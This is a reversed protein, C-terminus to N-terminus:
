KSKKKKTNKSIFLNELKEAAEKDPRQLAHAYIKMTTAPTSHGLRKGVTTTDVGQAILLSANTHRLQHFTLPPLNNKKRFKQFWKSPTDPFIPSGDWKIFLRDNDYDIGFLEKEKKQWLDGAKLRQENQWTKYQKLVKSVIPPLAITRISTQNKPDKPNVREDKSKSKDNVYQSARRIKIINNELDFDKWELGSLEGLRMGVFIVLYLIAKLRIHEKELLDLMEAVDKEEYHKPEAKDVKPSKVREAPNSTIVQWQVACTLMSSLLRHYHSITNTTLKGNDNVPNFLDKINADLFSAIKEAITQTTKGGKCLSAITKDSVDISRAFSTYGKRKSSGTVVNILESKATYKINQIIGEEGLNNYFEILQIPQLQNLKIHGLAPIIRNDLLSRYSNITKPALQKEAYDKFWRNSFDKLTIKGDLFQGTEVLREFELAQNQIEKEAQKKTLGPDLTVTKTKVLKKGNTDYGQSVTIQYSYESRKRISAM